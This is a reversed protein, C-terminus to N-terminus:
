EKKRAKRSAAARQRRPPTRPALLDPWMVPREDDVDELMDALLLAEIGEGCEDCYEPMGIDLMLAELCRRRRYDELSIIKGM